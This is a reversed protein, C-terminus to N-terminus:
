SADLLRRVDCAESICRSPKSLECHQSAHQAKCACWAL